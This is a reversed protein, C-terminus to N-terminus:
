RRMELEAAAFGFTVSARVGENRGVGNLGDDARDIEVLAIIGGFLKNGVLYDRAEVLDEFFAGPEIGLTFELLERLFLIAERGAIANKFLGAGVVVFDESDAGVDAIFKKTAAGTRGFLGAM